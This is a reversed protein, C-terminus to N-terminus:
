AVKLNRKIVQMEQEMEALIDLGILVRKMLDSQNIHTNCGRGYLAEFPHMRLYEQYGNDYPFEVLPLYDERKQYQHMDYMSLTDELIKNVREVQGNKQQHYAISFVLQTRLGAFLDKWFRFTFKFTRLGVFLDKWFRSTFKFAIYSIIKKHVGHLRVLQRIFIQAVESDSNTSKVTIFHTVKRLIGVMTMISDHKKSTRQFCTNYEM